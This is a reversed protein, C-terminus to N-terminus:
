AESNSVLERSSSLGSSARLVVICADDSVGVGTDAPFVIVVLCCCCCCCCCSSFFYSDVVALSSRGERSSSFEGEAEGVASDEELVSSDSDVVLAWSFTEKGDGKEVGLFSRVVDIM